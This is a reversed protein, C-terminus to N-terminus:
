TCRIMNYNAKLKNGLYTINVKKRKSPFNM